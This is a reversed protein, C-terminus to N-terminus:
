SKGVWTVSNGDASLDCLKLVLEWGWVGYMRGPGTLSIWSCSVVFILLLVFFQISLMLESILPISCVSSLIHQLCLSLEYVKGTGQWNSEATLSPM